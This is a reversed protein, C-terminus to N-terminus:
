WDSDQSKKSSKYLRFGLKYINIEIKLILKQRLDILKEIHLYLIM